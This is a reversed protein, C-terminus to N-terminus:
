LLVPLFLWVIMGVLVVPVAVRDHVGWRVPAFEDPLLRDLVGERKEGPLPRFPLAKAGLIYMYAWAELIIMGILVFRWVWTEHQYVTFIPSGFAFLSAGVFLLGAFIPRVKEKRQLFSMGLFAIGMAVVDVFFVEVWYFYLDAELIWVSIGVELPTLLTLLLAKSFRGPLETWLATLALFLVAPILGFIHTLFRDEPHHICVFWLFFVPLLLTHVLYVHLLIRTFIHFPISM